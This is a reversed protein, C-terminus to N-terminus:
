CKNGEHHAQPPSAESDSVIINNIRIHLLKIDYEQKKWIRLFTEYLKWYHSLHESCSEYLMRYEQWLHLEMQAKQLELAVDCVM